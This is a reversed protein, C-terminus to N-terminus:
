LPIQVSKEFFTFINHQLFTKRCIVNINIANYMISKIYGQNLLKIKSIDRICTM